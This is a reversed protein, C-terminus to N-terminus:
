GEGLIINPPPSQGYMLMDILEPSVSKLELSVEFMPPYYIELPPPFVPSAALM